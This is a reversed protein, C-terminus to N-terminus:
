ARIAEWMCREAFLWNADELKTNWEMCCRIVGIFAGMVIGMLLRPDGAKIEGRTQAAVIVGSFLQLMRQELTRSEEDLYAAHHHLELFVFSQVHDVAYEAMHLWLRKFLERAPERAAGGANVREIVNQAFRMKEARYLANVLAEKSEFYRYITGAGVGAREAIEPVATGHFGREVFLSLAAAMIADRKDAKADAGHARDAKADAGHARDAKADAGHAKDAKADAGHARDAKADAGDRKDQPLSRQSPRGPATTGSTKAANAM